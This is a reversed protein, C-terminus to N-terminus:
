NKDWEWPILMPSGNGNPNEIGHVDRTTSGPAHIHLAWPSEMPTTLNSRPHGEFTLILTM